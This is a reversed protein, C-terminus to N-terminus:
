AAAGRWRDGEFQIKQQKRPQKHPTQSHSHSHTFTMDPSTQTDDICTSVMQERRAMRKRTATTPRPTRRTSRGHRRRPRHIPPSLRVFVLLPGCLIARQNALANSIFALWVGRSTDNHLAFDDITHAEPPVAPWGPWPRGPDDLTGGTQRGEGNTSWRHPTLGGAADYSSRGEGRWGGGAAEPAPTSHTHTHSRARFALDPGEQHVRLALLAFSGVKFRREGSIGKLQAWAFAPGSVGMIRPALDMPDM